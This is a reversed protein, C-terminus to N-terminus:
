RKYKLLFVDPAKVLHTLDFREKNKELAPLLYMRTSQFPLPDLVVYDVKSKTLGNLLEKDDKTFAYSVCPHESFFYFFEPKRTCVIANPPLHDKAWEAMEFYSRYADQYPEDKHKTMNLVYQSTFLLIVCFFYPNWAVNRRELFKSILDNAGIVLFLMLFPIFPVTFRLDKWQTPWLMLTGMSMALYLVMSPYRGILKIMAYGM